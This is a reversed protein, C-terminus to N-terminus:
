FRFIKIGCKKQKERVHPKNQEKDPEDDPEGSADKERHVLKVL